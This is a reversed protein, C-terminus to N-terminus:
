APKIKAMITSVLSFNTEQRAPLQCSARSLCASSGSHRFAIDMDVVVQFEDKISSGIRCQETRSARGSVEIYPKM